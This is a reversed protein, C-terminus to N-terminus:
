LKSGLDTDAPVTHLRGRFRLGLREDTVRFADPFWGRVDEGSMLQVLALASRFCLVMGHGQFSASMWLGEEGPVAGVFPFGDSSYGMIGTWETRIRGDPHDDGWAERGFYRATTEHLYQSIIANKSADDTVGYELVGVEPAKALGGGIVIDGEFKSGKPRPIMYEYGDAYIFSYTYGLGDRPQKSGPRHATVQGRLPVIVGQFRKDLFATYGNTALVVNKAKIIGRSTELSWTGDAGKKVSLAPTNTYLQLGEEVCMKLVGVVLKYASLSGAFYSVSGVPRDGRVHFKEVTEEATWFQYRAAGEIDEPMANRMAEVALKASKWQSEDYIIDVTDGSYLDCDINHARSFAHVDKINQYELRAIKVAEAVGLTAASDLFSRYSAAKTHGGNRGTAGSCAQRAELMVVDKAGKELLGWATCAGSIGSGIVVMDATDPVASASLYNALQADPPDQWYSITPNAQPLTVPIAARKEMM